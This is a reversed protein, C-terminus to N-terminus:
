WTWDRAVASFDIINVEGDGNLDAKPNWGADEPHSGYAKALIAMDLINVRGDFNLDEKGSFVYNGSLVDYETSPIVEADPNVMIVDALELLCSLRQASAPAEIIEFTVSIMTGGGTRSPNDGLLSIGFLILGLDQRIEVYGPGDLIWGSPWLWTDGPFDAWTVNLLTNNYYLKAEYAFVGPATWDAASINVNFTAGVSTHSAFFVLDKPAIYVRPKQQEARTNPLAL